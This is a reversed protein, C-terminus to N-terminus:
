AQPWVAKQFSSRKLGIIPCLSFLLMKQCTESCLTRFWVRGCIRCKEFYRRGNAVVGHGFRVPLSQNCRKFLKTTPGKFFHLISPRTYWTSRTALGAAFTVAHQEAIGVDFTRKPFEKLIDLGTGSPMAATIAVINKDKKAHKILANAFM